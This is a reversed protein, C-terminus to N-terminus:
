TAPPGAGGHKAQWGEPDDLFAEVEKIIKLKYAASFRRRTPRADVEPDPRLEENAVREVGQKEKTM